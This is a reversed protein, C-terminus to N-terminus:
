FIHSSGRRYNVLMTLEGHIYMDAIFEKGAQTAFIMVNGSDDFKEYFLKMTDDDRYIRYVGGKKYLLGAKVLDQKIAQSNAGKLTRVYRELTHDKEGIIDAYTDREVTLREVKGQLAQMAKLVLQSESLEDHEEGVLYIGDKRLAPLVTGVVWEEFKEAAPLRSRMILRYVDREPITNVIQHGGATLVRRKSPAKCHKRIAQDTDNYGLVKAVDSAVFWPEGDEGVVTRVPHDEGTDTEYTFPIIPNHM